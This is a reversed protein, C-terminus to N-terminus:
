GKEALRRRAEQAILGARDKADQVDMLRDAQAIGPPPGLPTADRWGSMNQASLPARTPKAGADVVLSTPGATPSRWAGRLDGVARAFEAHVEPSMALGNMALQTTTPGAEGAEDVLAKVSAPPKAREIQAKLDAVAARLQALETEVDKMTEDSM